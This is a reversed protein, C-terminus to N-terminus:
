RAPPAPPDAPEAATQFVQHWPSWEEGGGLARVRVAHRADPALRDRGALPGVFTGTEPDVTARVAGVIPKSRWVVAGDAGAVEAEWGERAKEPAPGGLLIEPRRPAVIPGIPRTSIAFLDIWRTQDVPSGANWYSELFVANLGREDYRGRWDLGTREAELRDDIWLQMLGDREGPSNLRVRAEVRVWWGSESRASIPFRASPSNGLWRLRPFDNYRTTVVRDDRVGTAPDLTLTEGTTWVHGIMAQSWNPAALSTIRSLKDEGGGTWGPQHRVYVRWYVDNFREGRRVVRRGPADGFFVKRNGLGRSGKDYRSIMSRGRGGFSVRDDLEGETEEYEKEPGDFDDFWIVAPDDGGPRSPLPVVSDVRLSSGSQALLAAALWIGPLSM